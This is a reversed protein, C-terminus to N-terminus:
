SAPRPLVTISGSRSRLRLVREAADDQDVGVHTTGASSRADVSYPGTGPPLTVEVSEAGSTVNLHEPECVLDLEIAGGDTHAEIHRSSLERGILDGSKSLLRLAGSVREALVLGAGAEVDVRGDLGTLHVVGDRSRVTTDAGLPVVVEYDVRGYGFIWPHTHARLVIQEPTSEETVGPRRITYSTSRRVQVATTAGGTLHVDGADVEVILVCHGAPEFTASTTETRRRAAALLSMLAVLAVLAILAIWVM